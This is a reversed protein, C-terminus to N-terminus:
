QVFAFLSFYFLCWSIQLFFVRFEILLNLKEEQCKFEAAQLRDKEKFKKPSRIICMHYAHMCARVCVCVCVCVCVLVCM